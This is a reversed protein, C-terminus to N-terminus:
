PKEEHYPKKQEYLSLRQRAKELDDKPPNSDLYKSEWKVANDFDGAEAYAAALSSLAVSDKWESLECAKKAYELAKAGNRVNADPCVSLLWALNSYAWEYDPKLRIAENYSTVAKDYDGRHYYALGRNYYAEGFNPCLRIADNCDVLALEYFGKDNYFAGRANHAEVFDPELRIALTEDAIAKDYNGKRNYSLGRNFYAGADDPKLRIVDSYDAIARDSDGKEDYANGREIYADVYDPKLRTVESCDAIAKDWEGKNYYAYERNYYARFDDPKLQIAKSFEAIALDYDRRRGAEQGRELAREFQNNGCGLGALLLLLFVGLWSLRAFLRLAPPSSPPRPGTIM